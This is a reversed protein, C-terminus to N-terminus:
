GFAKTFIDAYQKNTRVHELCIKKNEVLEHIFHHRIEIHKTKNHQVLNKSINIVSMNDCFLTMVDQGVGYETLMQKM